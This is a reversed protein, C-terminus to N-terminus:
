HLRQIHDFKAQGSLRYFRALEQRLAASDQVEMLHGGLWHCYESALKSAMSYRDRLEKDLQPTLTSNAFLCRHLYRRELKCSHNELLIVYKDIEAQLELDIPRIQRDNHAHWLLCVAHSVGEVVTCIGDLDAQSDDVAALLQEDVYVTFEFSNKAQHIFVVEEDVVPRQQGNRAQEDALRNAIMKDSSFFQEIRYPIDLDYRSEIKSQLDALVTNVM